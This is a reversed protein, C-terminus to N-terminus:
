FNATIFDSLSSFEVGSGAARFGKSGGMTAAVDGTYGLKDLAFPDIGSVVGTEDARMFNGSNTVDGPKFSGKYGTAMQGTRQNVELRAKGQQLTPQSSRKCFLNPVDFGLMAGVISLPIGRFGDAGLM